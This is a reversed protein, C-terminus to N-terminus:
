GECEKSPQCGNQQGYKVIDRLEVFLYQSEGEMNQNADFIVHYFQIIQHDVM